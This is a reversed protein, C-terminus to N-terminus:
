GTLVDGTWALIHGGMTHLHLWIDFRQSNHSRGSAWHACSRGFGPWSAEPRAFETERTGLGLGFFLRGVPRAQELHPCCARWPRFLRQWHHRRSSPAERQEPQPTTKRGLGPTLPRFRVRHLAHLCPPRLTQTTPCAPECPVPFRLYAGRVIVLIGVPARGSKIRGIPNHGRRSRWAASMVGGFWPPPTTAPLPRTRDSM